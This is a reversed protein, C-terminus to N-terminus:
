RIQGRVSDVRIKTSDGAISQELVNRNFQIRQLTDLVMRMAKVRAEMHAQFVSDLQVKGPNSRSAKLASLMHLKFTDRIAMM